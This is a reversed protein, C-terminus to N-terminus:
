AGAHTENTMCAGKFNRGYSGGREDFPIEGLRPEKEIATTWLPTSQLIGRLEESLPAICTHRTDHLTFEITSCHLALRDLGKTKRWWRNVKSDGHQSDGIIPHGMFSAHRRIQHTRGTLPECLLLSSREHEGGTTALLTFKTKADKVVDHVKLPKDVIFEDTSKTWEGRVLAIYKKQGERIAARHLIGATETDFALIMAGSTRHDLRHVPFVKRSLQRKVASTLVPKGRSAGPAWHVTIGTPKNVCVWDDHYQLIPIRQRTPPNVSSLSHVGVVTGLFLLFAIPLLLARRSM